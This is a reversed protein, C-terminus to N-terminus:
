PEQNFPNSYKEDSLMDHDTLTNFFAILAEKETQSFNFRFPQGNSRSLAPSLREHAQIGNSYHDIVQELTAFRGDHMYPARVQINRLSPTKFKGIDNRNNTTEFIGLDDTSVADLGNNTSTTRGITGNPISGVFAETVHCSACNAQEGDITRASFFLTKGQNEQTTFGEFNVLASPEDRRAIDYKATTSVMTRIFQALARAIRDSSVIDDGFANIFLASYYSQNRVIEELEALVLGMEIPDQFPMLVQQELTSAREDWFFKGSFYFRANVLGMSHRRTSGGNFGVSLTRPDSFGNQPLHCSACAISGNASLRKDYFLVRGLTAGANTIANDSPTNDFESAAHQAQLRAPFDNQTLHNPLPINEYDFPTSPLNVISDSALPTTVVTGEENSSEGGSSEGGCSTLLVVNVAYGFIRICHRM